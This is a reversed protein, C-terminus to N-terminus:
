RAKRFAVGWALDVVSNSAHLLGSVTTPATICVLRPALVFCYDSWYLHQLHLCALLVM